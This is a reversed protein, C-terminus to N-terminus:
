AKKLIVYMRKDDPLESTSKISFSEKEEINDAGLNKLAVEFDSDGMPILARPEISEIIEAAKKSDLNSKGGINMMLIDVDGIQKITESTLVHGLEGLHCIKIGDIEFYFIITSEGAKGEDEEKSRSKTWAQFGIVPIGKIEYEGPWDFVKQAGEVEVNEGEKLSSLVVDGTLKGAQEDPNIVLTAEKGKLSFGTNGHWKIEM